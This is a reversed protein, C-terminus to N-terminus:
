SAPLTYSTFALPYIPAYWLMGALGVDRGFKGPVDAQLTYTGDEAWLFGRSPGIILDVAEDDLAPVWVPQLQIGLESSGGNM